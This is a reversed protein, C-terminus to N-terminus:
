EFIIKCGHSEALEKNEFYEFFNYVYGGTLVYKKGKFVGHITAWTGINGIESLSEPFYIETPSLWAFCHNGLYTIGDEVVIKGIACYPEERFECFTWDKDWTAGSGKVYLVGNDMFEFYVDDGMQKTAYKGTKDPKLNPPETSRPNPTPGTTYRKYEKEIWESPNYNNSLAFEGFEINGRLGIIETQENVTNFFTAYGIKTMSQPIYIKRVCFLDHFCFNGLETIGERIVIETVEAFHKKVTANYEEDGCVVNVSHRPEYQTTFTGEVDRIKGSGHVILTGNDYFDYWADEGMRLSDLLKADTITTETRGPAETPMPSVVLETTPVAILTPEAKPSLVPTPEEEPFTTGDPLIEPEGTISPKTTPEVMVGMTVAPKSVETMTDERIAVSDTKGLFLVTTGIVAVLGVGVIVANRVRNGNGNGSM